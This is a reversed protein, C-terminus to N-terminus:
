GGPDSNSAESAMIEAIVVGGGAASRSRLCRCFYSGCEGELIWIGGPVLISLNRANSLLLGVVKRNSATGFRASDVRFIIGTEGPLRAVFGM